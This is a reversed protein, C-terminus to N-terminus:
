PQGGRLAAYLADPEWDPYAPAQRDVSAAATEADLAPPADADTYLFGGYVLALYQPLPAAARVSDVSGLAYSSLIVPPAATLLPAASQRQDRSVTAAPLGDLLNASGTQAPQESLASRAQDCFRTDGTASARRLYWDALALQAVHRMRAADSQARVRIGDRVSDAPSAALAQPQGPCEGLAAQIRQTESALAADALQLEFAQARSALQADSLAFFQHEQELYQQAWLAGTSHPGACAAAGFALLGCSLVCFWGRLRM